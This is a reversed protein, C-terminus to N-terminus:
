LYVDDNFWEDNENILMENGGNVLRLWLYIDDLIKYDFFYVIIILWNFDCNVREVM